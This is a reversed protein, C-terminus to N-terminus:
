LGAFVLQLHMAKEKPWFYVLIRDNSTWRRTDYGQEALEAKQKPDFNMSVHYEPLDDDDVVRRLQPKFFRPELM